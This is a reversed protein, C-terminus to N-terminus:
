AGHCEILKGIQKTLQLKARLLTERSLTTSQRPRSGAEADDISTIANEIADFHKSLEAIAQHLEANAVLVNTVTTVIRVPNSLVPKFGKRDFLRVVNDM